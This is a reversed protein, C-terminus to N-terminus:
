KINGKSESDKLDNRVNNQKSNNRPYRDIISVILMIAVISVIVLLVFTGVYTLFKLIDIQM